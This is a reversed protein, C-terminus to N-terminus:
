LYNRYKAELIHWHHVFATWYRKADLRGRQRAVVSFLHRDTDDDDDDDDDDNDLVITAPDIVAEARARRFDSPYQLGGLRIPPALNQGVGSASMTQQGGGAGGHMGAEAEQFWESEMASAAMAGRQLQPGGHRLSGMSTECGGGGGGRLAPEDEEISSNWATVVQVWEDPMFDLERDIDSAAVSTATVTTASMILLQRQRSSTLAPRSQLALKHYLVCQRYFKPGTRFTRVTGTGPAAAASRLTVTIIEDDEWREIFEKVFQQNASIAERRTTDELVFRPPQQSGPTTQVALLLAHWFDPHSPFALDRGTNRQVVDTLTSCRPLPLDLM